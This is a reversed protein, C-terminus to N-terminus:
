REDNAGRNKNKLWYVAMVVPTIVLYAVVGLLLAGMPFAGWTWRDTELWYNSVPVLFFTIGTAVVIALTYYGLLKLSQRHLTKM